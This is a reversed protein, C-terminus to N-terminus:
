WLGVWSVKMTAASVSLWAVRRSVKLTVPLRKGVRRYSGLRGLGMRRGWCGLVAMRGRWFAVGGVVAELGRSQVSFSYALGRQVAVAPAWGKGADARGSAPIVVSWTM